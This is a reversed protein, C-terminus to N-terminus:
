GAQRSARLGLHRGVFKAGQRVLAIVADRQHALDEGVEVRGQAGVELQGLTRVGVEELGNLAALLPTTVGDDAQGAAAQDSHAALADGDLTAAGQDLLRAAGIRQRPERRELSAEADGIVGAHRAEGAAQDTVEAVVRHAVDLRAQTGTGVRVQYARGSMRSMTESSTTTKSLRLPRMYMMTCRSGPAPSVRALPSARTASSALSICRPAGLRARAPRPARHALGVEDGAEGLLAELCRHVADLLVDQLAVAHLHDQGLAQGDGEACRRQIEVPGQAPEIGRGIHVEQVQAPKWM